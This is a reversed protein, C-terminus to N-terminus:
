PGPVFVVGELRDMGSAADAATCTAGSTPSDPCLFAESGDSAVGLVLTAMITEAAAIFDISGISGTTPITAVDTFAQNSVTGKVINVATGPIYAIGPASTGTPALLAFGYLRGDTFLTSVVGDSTVQSVQRTVGTTLVDAYLAGEFVSLQLPASPGLVLTCAGTCLQLQSGSGWALINGDLPAAGTPPTLATAGLSTSQVLGTRSVTAVVGIGSGGTSAPALSTGAIYVTGDADV